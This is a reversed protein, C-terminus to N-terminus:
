HPECSPRESLDVSVAAPPEIDAIGLLIADGGIVAIGRCLAAPTAVLGVTLEEGVAAISTVTADRYTSGAWVLLLSSYNGSTPAPDDASWEVWATALDTSSAFQASVPLDPGPSLFVRAVEEFDLQAAAGL